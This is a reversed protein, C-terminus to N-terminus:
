KWSLCKMGRMDEGVRDPSPSMVEGAMALNRHQFGLSHGMAHLMATRSANPHFRVDSSLIQERGFGDEVAKDLKQVGLDWSSPAGDMDSWGDDMATSGQPGADDLSEDIRFVIWGPENRPCTDRWVPGRIGYGEGRYMNVVWAFDDRNLGPEGCATPWEDSAKKACKAQWAAVQSQEVDKKGHGIAIVASFAATVALGIGFLISNAKKGM